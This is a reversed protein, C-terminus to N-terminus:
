GSFITGTPDPGQKIEVWVSATGVSSLGHEQYSTEATITDYVQFAKYFKSDVTKM